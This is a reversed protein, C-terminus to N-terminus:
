MRCRGGVFGATNGCGFAKAFEPMNHLPLMCKERPTLPDPRQSASCWLLCYRLFFIRMAEHWHTVFVGYDPALERFETMLADFALRLGQALLYM